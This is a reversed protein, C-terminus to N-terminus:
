KHDPPPIDTNYMDVIIRWAGDSQKKWISVWKGPEQTMNGDEGMMTAEYYGMSYAMDGGKSIEIKTLTSKSDFNPIEFIHNWEARISEKGKVIPEATPLLYADTSYFSLLLDLDKRNIADQLSSDAKRLTEEIQSLNSSESSNCFTFVSCIILLLVIKAATKVTIISMLTKMLM